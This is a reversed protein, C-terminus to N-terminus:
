LLLAQMAALHIAASAARDPALASLTPASAPVKGLWNMDGTDVCGYPLDDKPCYIRVHLHDDHPASDSPQTLLGRAREVLSPAEGIERAHDLLLLSLPEYLFLYQVQATPSTALAKVLQWNRAVDFRRPPAVYRQNNRSRGDAGLRRMEDSRVAKGAGNTLFLLLDVDRGSQHSNHQPSPGGGPPSLDAVGLQAGPFAATVQRASGIVLEVLERTGYRFRRQQWTPPAFYGPGRDAIRAPEVLVGRNSRGHAISTGDGVVGLQACGSTTLVAALLVLSTSPSCRM